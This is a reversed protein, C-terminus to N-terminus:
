DKAKEVVGKMKEFETIQAYPKKVKLKQRELKELLLKLFILFRRNEIGKSDFEKEMRKITKYSGILFSADVSNAGNWSRLNEYMIVRIVGLQARLKRAAAHDGEVGCELTGLVDAISQWDAHLLSDSISTKHRSAM